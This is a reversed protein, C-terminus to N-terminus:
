GRSMGWLFFVSQRRGSNEKDNLSRYQGHLTFIVTAPPFYYNVDSMPARIFTEDAGNLNTPGFWDADPRKFMATPASVRLFNRWDMAPLAHAEAAKKPRGPRNILRDAPAHPGNGATRAM